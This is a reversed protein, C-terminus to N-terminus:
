DFSGRGDRQSVQRRGSGMRSRYGRNGKPGNIIDLRGQILDNLANRWAIPMRSPILRRHVGFYKAAPDTYQIGVSNGAVTTTLSQQMEGTVIGQVNVPARLRGMRALAQRRKVTSPKPAPWRRGSFSAGGRSLNDFYIRALGELRDAVDQLIMPEEAAIAAKMADVQAKPGIPNFRLKM